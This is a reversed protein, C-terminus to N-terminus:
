KPQIKTVPTLTRPELHMVESLDVKAAVHLKYVANDAVDGLAAGLQRDALLHRVFEHQHELAAADHHAPVVVFHRDL